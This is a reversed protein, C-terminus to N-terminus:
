EVMVGNHGGGTARSEIVPLECVVPAAGGAAAAEPRWRAWAEGVRRRTGDASVPGGEEAGEAPEDSPLVLAIVADGGGAGPVVAMLVGRQEMTYDLLQTQLPPEVQTGSRASIERVLRRLTFSSERVLELAAGLDGSAAWEGFPLRGVRVLERLWPSKELRARAAAELAAHKQCLVQLAAQLRDSADSYADWLAAAGEGAKRWALISKVMSPTHAGCSVDAMMVEIGPPM